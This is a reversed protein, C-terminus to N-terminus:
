VALVTCGRFMPSMSSLGQLSAIGKESATVFALVKMVPHTAKPPDSIMISIKCNDTQRDTVHSHSTVPLSEVQALFTEEGEDSSKSSVLPLRCVCCAIASATSSLLGNSLTLPASNSRYTSKRTDARHRCILSIRSDSNDM